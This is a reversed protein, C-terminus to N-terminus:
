PNVRVRRSHHGTAGDPRPTAKSATQTEGDGDIARVALLHDGPTANWEFLWQVWTNNSAVDGIRTNEWPGDDVRVQVASIGRTPAWAVGAVALNGAAVKAGKRPVDIRSSTKIPAEKAWGRPIWYADFDELRTLQIDRLWKTASVYGYLGAVILRAPYGHRQPLPEGNMGVAVLATRGDLGVATPFGVTFNDVSRGVIQSGEPRPKARELLDALPVGLWSANGVLSGGVENSVCQITVPEEVMDMALLEDYTLRYPKDVLGRIELTWRDVNVRPVFLATDIRYFDGNATVYPSVGEVAFPQSTPLPTVRRAKPLARTAIDGAADRVARAVGGALLAAGGAAGAFALFARRSGAQVRPDVTADAAEVIPRAVDIRRLLGSLVVVGMAVGLAAGVVVGARNALPDALGAVLGLFGFASFGVFGVRWRQQAAVGLWAGVVVAVLVIGVELAQKDNTGFVAVAVDKIPAAFRNIFQTGISEILSPGRFIAAAVETAALAASAAIAGALRASRQSKPDATM